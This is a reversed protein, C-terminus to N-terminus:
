QLGLMERIPETMLDLGKFRITEQAGLVTRQENEMLQSAGGDPGLPLVVLEPAPSYTASPARGAILDTLNAAAVKAHDIAASARKSEPIDTLDGVAFVNDFGEVQLTPTVAMTGDTRRVQALEADLYGSEQQNGYCRFWMDGDIQEGATTHVAFREYVGVDDPPLYGLPAGLVFRVGRDELQGRIADRLEPLYDGTTLIDAASDVITVGLGPFASTIEGALEVGVPGGGVLMINSCNAITKRLRALRAQVVWADTEIFKAPFPYGTGTALVIYDADLVESASLHVKHATVLRASDHIIRGRTLLSDYSHFVNDEWNEEVVARLTGAAHVFKDKPEVLTVDAVPDLARAVVAGAYGGGVVVVRQERANTEATNSM